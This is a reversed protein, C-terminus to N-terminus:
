LVPARSVVFRQLSPSCGLLKVGILLDAAESSKQTCKIIPTSRKTSDPDPTSMSTHRLPRAGSPKTSMGKQLQRPMCNPDQVMLFDLILIGACCLTVGPFVMDRHSLAYKRAISSRSLLSFALSVKNPVQTNHGM